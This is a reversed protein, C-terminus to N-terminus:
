KGCGSVCNGSNCNNIVNCGKNTKPPTNTPIANGFSSSFGGTFGILEFDNPIDSQYNSERIQDTNVESLDFELPSLFTNM